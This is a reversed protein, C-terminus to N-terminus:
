QNIIKLYHLIGMICIHSISMPFGFVRFVKRSRLEPVFSKIVKSNFTKRCSSLSVCLREISVAKVDDARLGFLARRRYRVFDDPRAWSQIEVRENLPLFEVFQSKEFGWFDEAWAEPAHRWDYGKTGNGIQPKIKVDTFLKDERRVRSCRHEHKCRILGHM